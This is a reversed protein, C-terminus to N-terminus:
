DAGELLEDLQLLRERVEFLLRQLVLLLDIFVELRQDLRVGLVLLQLLLEEPLLLLM